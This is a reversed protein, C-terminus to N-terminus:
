ASKSRWLYYAWGLVLIELAFSWHLIFNLWWPKYVAEVTFLAFPKDIFPAFWWIDGVISDLLMHISGSISFIVALAPASKNNALKFWISSAALITLWLVPYHPWYTHHHNQRNDILYFYFMDLDPAIGGLAGALIFFKTSVGTDAFQKLLLKASIYGAPLHGIFMFVRVIILRCRQRM